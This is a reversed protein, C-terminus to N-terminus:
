KRNYFKVYEKPAVKIFKHYLKDWEIAWKGYKYDSMRLLYNSSCLYPRKMAKNYFYGMCYINSIMVWSYADISIVSMFWKYIEDPSIRQMIFYNLFVMLRVIHHSYGYNLAKKLENNLLENDFKSYWIKPMLRNNNPLNYKIIEKRTCYLYRMYERWGAVQRVFAENKKKIVEQPSILGINLCASIHSHYAFINNKYIADQYKAFKNLKLKNLLKKVDVRTIPYYVVNNPNGIHDPFHINTYTIAENYIKNSYAKLKEKYSDPSSRNMGDTSKDYGKIGITERVYKYFSKHNNYTVNLQNRKLLFLKTDHIVLKSGFLKRYKKEVDYDVPDYMHIKKYKDLIDYSKLLYDHDVYLDGDRKNYKMCARMYAIKIKNVKVVETFYIPEELIIANHNRKFLQNPLIIWTEM